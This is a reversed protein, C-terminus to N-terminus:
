SSSKPAPIVHLSLLDPIPALGPGGDALWGELLDVVGLDRVLALWVPRGGGRRGLASPRVVVVNAQSCPGLCDSTRVSVQSPREDAIDELRRLQAGHDTRPDKRPNGCCCGRCVVVGSRGPSDVVANAAARRAARGM